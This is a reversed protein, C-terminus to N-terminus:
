LLDRIFINQTEEDVTEITDEHENLFHELSKFNFYDFDHKELIVNATGELIFYVNDEDGVMDCQKVIADNELYVKIEM